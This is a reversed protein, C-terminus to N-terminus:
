KRKKSCYTETQSHCNPCLVRLNSFENNFRNGDVHDVHLVLKKGNYSDQLGCSVCQYDVTKLFQKKVHHFSKYDKIDKLQLDKNWAQGHFHDCNFNYINIYKKLTHFNGGVHKLCLKKLVECLSSSNAVIDRLLEKNKWNVKM